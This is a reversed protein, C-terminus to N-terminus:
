AEEEEQLLKKAMYLRQFATILEVALFLLTFFLLYETFLIMLSLLIFGETREALAPQYYFSKETKKDAVAGVTLFITVTYLISAMLLLMAWMLDPYRFALALIIGAEVLRDFSVDLVTGFKTSTTKRAMTGDVADLFGSFWLLLFGTVYWGAFVAGAAAAGTLFGLVTMQNASLGTRLAVGATKEIVPQVIYRAKTDIM